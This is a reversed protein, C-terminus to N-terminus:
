VKENHFDERQHLTILSNIKQFIVGISKQEVNSRPFVIRSNFFDDPSINLLGHNRAGESAIKAMEPHWNSTEYYHVLYESDVKIPRFVIYLTSLVGKEYEDLRKVAGWIASDSTSKNYAFDGKYLLYYNLINQSAVRNNFFTIQDVLGYEASITLPLTSELKDNKRTIREVVDKM